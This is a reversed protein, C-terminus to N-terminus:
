EFEVTEPFVEIGSKETPLLLTFTSGEGLRSKVRIKGGTKKMITEVISLGLGTGTTSTDVRFFRSFLRRQNEKNIGIGGDIVQVKVFNGELGTMVKIYGAPKNYKIANNVLNAIV